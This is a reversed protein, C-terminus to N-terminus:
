EEELEMTKLNNKYGKKIKSLSKKVSKVENQLFVDVALDFAEYFDKTEKVSINDHSSIEVKFNGNRRLKCKVWINSSTSKKLKKSVYNIMSASFDVNKSDYYIFPKSNSKFDQMILKEM